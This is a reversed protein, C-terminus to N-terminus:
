YVGRDKWFERPNLEQIEKRRGKKIKFPLDELLNKFENQTHEKKLTVSGTNSSFFIPMDNKYGNDFITLSPTVKLDSVLKCQQNLQFDFEVMDYATYGDGHRRGGSDNYQYCAKLRLLQGLSLKAEKKFEIKVAYNLDHLKPMEVTKLEYGLHKMGQIIEVAETSNLIDPDWRGEIGELDQAM